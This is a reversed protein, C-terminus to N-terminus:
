AAKKQQLQQIHQALAALIADYQSETYLRAAGQRAAPHIGLFGLQDATVSMADLRMNIAGLSLSAHETAPRPSAIPVVNAVPQPAPAVSAPQVIPAAAPTPAPKAAEAAQRAEAAARDSEIKALSKILREAEAQEEALKQRAAAEAKAQEEARIRERAEEALKDAREQEAQKHQAIRSTVLAQLDDAAKLVIAATDPFLAKHESAHEVLYKLNADIGDAIENARIKARALLDNVASQMSDLNKKGKIAGGFDTLEAHLAPMYPKGLRTNLASIHARIGNIGTAVIEGRRREKEDKLLREAMACNQQLLADLMDATKAAQDIPQVQAFMQSKGAKLAERADKMAKIQGDLDVFDQDTEPKRILRNELFDRLRTEFVKFNDAVTVAGSVTMLLAPLAEVPAAVPAAKAETPVYEALDTEFQEWGAVIEARLAPDSVYWCHRKEALEDGNWKSAMFLVRDADSVMLQQEMQVRYMLPLDDGNGEDKMCARLEDNLTKHEFATDEAMTLGDFSASYKGKTGTVPYLDEGIIAAALPRALAEIRHGDKMRALTAGDFEQTIGTSLEHLLQTRTKYPSCGMMAPADSANRHAARHAHWNADGQILDHTEM